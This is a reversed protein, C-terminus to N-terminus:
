MCVHCRATEDCDNELEIKQLPLVCMIYWNYLM